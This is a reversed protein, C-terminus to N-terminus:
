RLNRPQASFRKHTILTLMLFVMAGLKAVKYAIADTGIPWPLQESFVAIIALAHYMDTLLRHLMDITNILLIMM